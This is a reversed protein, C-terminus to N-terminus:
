TQQAIAETVRREVLDAFKEVLALFLREKNPFHFYISGKSTDSEAVIEDLRADHYGKNSFVSLAADLIRERTSEPSRVNKETM